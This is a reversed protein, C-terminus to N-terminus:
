PSPPQPTESFGPIHRRVREIMGADSSVPAGLAVQAGLYDRLEAKPGFVLNMRGLSRGDHEARVIRTKGIVWPSDCNTRYSRGGVIVDVQPLSQALLSDVADGCTSLLIIIEAKGELGAVARRAFSVPDEIIVGDPLLASDSRMVDRIGCLGVFAVRADKVTRIVYPTALAGGKFRLNASVFEFKADRKAAKFADVGFALERESLNVAAPKLHNYAEVMVAGRASDAAASGSLFNGADCYVVAPDEERAALIVASRRAIGGDEHKCGCGDLRGRTDSSYYVSILTGEPIDRRGRNCGAPIWATLSLSLLLGLQMWRNM